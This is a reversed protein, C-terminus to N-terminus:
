DGRAHSVERETPSMTKYKAVAQKVRETIKGEGNSAAESFVVKWANDPLRKPQKLAVERLQRVEKRKKSSTIEQKQKETPKRKTRIKKAKKAKKAKKSYKAGKGRSKSKTSKKSGSPKKKTATKSKAKRTTSRKTKPATQMSTSNNATTDTAYLRSFTSQICQAKEEILLPNSLQPKTLIFLSRSAACLKPLHTAPKRSADFALKSLLGRGIM